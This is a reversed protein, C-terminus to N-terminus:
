DFEVAVLEQQGVAELDESLQLVAVSGLAVELVVLLPQVVWRVDLSLVIVFFLSV